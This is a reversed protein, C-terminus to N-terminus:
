NGDVNQNQKNDSGEYYVTTEIFLKTKNTIVARTKSQSFRAFTSSEM